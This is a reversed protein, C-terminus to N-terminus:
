PEFIVRVVNSLNSFDGCPGTPDRYWCQFYWTDYADIHGSVPFRMLADAVLGPGYDITGTSGSNALAYRYAPPNTCRLGDFFPSPRKSTPSMYMIANINVPMRSVSLVLDDATVSVNGATWANLAGMGTSNKCGASSDDNGCPAMGIPCWCFEVVKDECEDPIGNMNADSSAGTAIDVADEVGNKNCDFCPQEEYDAADLEDGWMVANTRSTALGLNEAAIFIGPFVSLGGLAVPRPTTL